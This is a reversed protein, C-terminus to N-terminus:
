RRSTLNKTLIKYRNRINKIKKRKVFDNNIKTFNGPALPYTYPYGFSEISCIKTLLYMLAVGIGAVGGIGGFLLFTIRWNRCANVINIDTFVLGALASIAIVIIMISSVIGASVAADGLILAGVISLTSGSISTSRYDGERLIEFALIMLLAEIVAPFPVGERQASFHLLLESPIAEHNFTIMGVYLGPVVITIIFALVRIVRTYFVNRSKQFYDSTNNIFDMLFSPVILVYPNNEVVLAVRGELLLISTYDPRETSIVTPFDTDNVNTISEVIYNSNIIADIDIDELRKVVDNILKPNAIDAMYLMGVKTQSRVGVKLQKLVLKDTKLRKRILAVNNDYSENFSDKAGKLSNENSIKSIPRDIIGRTEAAYVNSKYLIVTFSSYLYYFIDENVIDVRKIKCTSLNKELNNLVSMENKTTVIKKINNIVFDSLFASNVLTEVFIIKVSENIIKLDRYVIDSSELSDKKIKEELKM